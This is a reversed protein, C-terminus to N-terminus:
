AGPRSEVWSFLTALEEPSLREPRAEPDIGAPWARDRGLISGLQKRRKSFLGTVFRAFAERHERDGHGLSARIAEPVEADARPRVALTASTVKPPPWFCGPPLVELREVGAVAQVIATLTGYGGGGPGAVLRDAVEKQVTVFQGRCDPHHMALEAMLPSAAQYPLNAVLRFPEGGLAERVAPALRRGRELCDGRVLTLRGGAEPVIEQEILDALGHDLECAVVRCGRALLVETLAGTGPGVELVLDGETVGSADVLREIRTTEHLFNQGFRHRPQLGHAALLQKIRALDQV